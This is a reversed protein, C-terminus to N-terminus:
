GVSRLLELSQSRSVGGGAPHSISASPTFHEALIRRARAGTLEATGDTTSPEAAARLMGCAPAFRCLGLPVKGPIRKDEFRANATAPLRPSAVVSRVNVRM